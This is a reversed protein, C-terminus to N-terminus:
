AAANTNLANNDPDTTLGNGSLMFEDAQKRIENLLSLPAMVLRARVKYIEGENAVEPWVRWVLLTHPSVEVFFKLSQVFGAIVEGPSPRCHDGWSAGEIVVGFTGLTQYVYHNIGPVSFFARAPGTVQQVNKAELLVAVERRLRRTYEDPLMHTASSQLGSHM